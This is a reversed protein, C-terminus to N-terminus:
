QGSADLQRNRDDADGVTPAEPMFFDQATATREMDGDEVIEGFDPNVKEIFEHESARLESHNDAEGAMADIFATYEM